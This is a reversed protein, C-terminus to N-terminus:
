SNFVSFNKKFVNKEEAYLLFQETDVCRQAQSQPYNRIIHTM